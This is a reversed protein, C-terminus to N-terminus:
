VRQSVMAIWGLWAGFMLVLAGLGSVFAVNLVREKRVMPADLLLSVSGLVPRNTLTRLSKADQIRPFLQSLIFSAVVGAGLAAGLAMAIFVLRNPFVPTPSVRPPDIV